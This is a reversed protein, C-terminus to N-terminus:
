NTMKIKEVMPIWWIINLIPPQLQIVLPNNEPSFFSIDKHWGMDEHSGDVSVSVIDRNVGEWRSM